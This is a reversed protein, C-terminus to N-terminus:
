NSNHAYKDICPAGIELTKEWWWSGLRFLYEDDLNQFEQWQVIRVILSDNFKNFNMELLIAINSANIAPVFCYIIICNNNDLNYSRGIM